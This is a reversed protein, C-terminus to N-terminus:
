LNILFGMKGRRWIYYRELFRKMLPRLRSVRLSVNDEGWPKTSRVHLGIGHGTDLIFIFIPKFSGRNRGKVREGIYVGSRMALEGLKPWGKVVDGAAYVGGKIELYQNVTYAQFPEQVKCEDLVLEPSETSKLGYRTTLELVKNEVETGLFRLFNGAIKVDKGLRKLYFGLQLILYEDKEDEVGLSVEKRKLSEQILQTLNPRICGPALILNEAVYTGLNTRVMRSGIDLDNVEEVRVFPIKVEGRVSPDIVRRLEATWYKFVSTRSLIIASDLSYYANLGAYGAGVILNVKTEMNM